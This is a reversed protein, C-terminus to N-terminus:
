CSTARSCALHSLSDEFALCNNESLLESYMGNSWGLKTTSAMRSTYVCLLHFPIATRRFRCEQDLMQALCDSCAFQFERYSVNAVTAKPDIESESDTTRLAIASSSPRRSARRRQRAFEHTLRM